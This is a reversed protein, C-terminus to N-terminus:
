ILYFSQVKFSSFPLLLGVIRSVKVIPLLPSLTLALTLSLSHPPPPLLAPLSPSRSLCVSLPSLSLCVSISLALTLSLSCQHFSTLPKDWFLSSRKSENNLVCDASLTGISSSLRNPLDYVSCLVRKGSLTRVTFVM